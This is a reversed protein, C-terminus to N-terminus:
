STSRLLLLVIPLGSAYKGTTSITSLWGVFTPRAPYLLIMTVIWVNELLDFIGGLLPVVNLRQMASDPGFGRRLLWSISLCFMATYLTLLFIDLAHIWVMQTREADTYSAVTAFAEQPTYGPRGDLSTSVLAPDFLPLNVLVLFAAIALLAVWGTAWSHLRDSLNAIM